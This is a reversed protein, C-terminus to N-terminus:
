YRTQIPVDGGIRWTGTTPLALRYNGNINTQWIPSLTFEGGLLTTRGAVNPPLSATFTDYKTKLYAL